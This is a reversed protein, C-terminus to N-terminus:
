RKIKILTYSGEKSLIVDKAGFYNKITELLKYSIKPNRHGIRVLFENENRILVENESIRFTSALFLNIEVMTREVKTDSLNIEFSPLESMAKHAVVSPNNEKSVEFAVFLNFLFEMVTIVIALWVIPNSLPLSVILFADVFLLSIFHLSM